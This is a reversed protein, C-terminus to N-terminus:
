GEPGMMRGTLPCRPGNCNCDPYRPCFGSIGSGATPPVLGYLMLEIERRLGATGGSRFERGAVYKWAEERNMQVQTSYKPWIEEFCARAHEVHYPTGEFLSSANEGLLQATKWIADADPPISGWFAIPLVDHESLLSSFTQEDLQARVLEIRVKAVLTARWDVASERMRKVRGGLERVPELRVGPV